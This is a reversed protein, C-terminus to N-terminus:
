KQEGTVYEKVYKVMEKAAPSLLEMNLCCIGLVRYQEPQIPYIDVNCSVTKTFLEPMICIGAGCEVMAMTSQDDLVHCNARVSLRYKNLFNTIDTDCSEQQIVFPQNKLDDPTMCQTYAPMYGKPVVCMLNDRYLPLFPLGEKAEQSVIGCDIIGNRIWSITDSYSGQYVEIDIQPYDQQFAKIIHPVWALCVTNTCGLKVKGTQLGNLNQIAQQLNNNSTIIKQIYPYLQLGASTLKVGSKSRAFLSCGVEAEMASISHSIASPTLHLISAAKAFSGQEMVTQFIEYSLLTM